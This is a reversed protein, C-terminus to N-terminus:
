RRRLRLRSSTSLTGRFFAAFGGEAHHAPGDSVGRNAQPGAQMLTKLRDIPATLPQRRWCDIRLVGEPRASLLQAIRTAFLKRPAVRRPQNWTSARLHRSSPRLTVTRCCCWFPSSEDFSITGDRTSDRSYLGEKTTRRHDQLRAARARRMENAYPPWRWGRGNSRSRACSRSASALLATSAASIKGDGDIDARSSPMSASSAAPLSQHPLCRHSGAPRALRQRRCRDAPLGEAARGGLASSYTDSPAGGVAM